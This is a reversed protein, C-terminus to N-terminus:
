CCLQPGSVGTHPRLRSNIRAAHGQGFSRFLYLAFAFAFAFLFFFIVETCCFAYMSHFSLTISSQSCCKCLSLSAGVVSCIFKRLRTTSLHLCSARLRSAPGLPPLLRLALGLPPRMRLHSSLGIRSQKSPIGPAPLLLHM